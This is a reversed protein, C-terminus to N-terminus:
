EAGDGWDEKPTVTLRVEGRFTGHYPFAGSAVDGWNLDPHVHIVGHLMRGPSQVTAENTAQASMGRTIGLGRGPAAMGDTVIELRLVYPLLAGANPGDPDESTATGIVTTKRLESVEVPLATLTVPTNAIIQFPIQAADLQPARGPIFPGGPVLGEARSPIRLVFGQGNPFQVEAMPHVRIMLTVKANEESASAEPPMLWIIAIAIAAIGGARIARSKM